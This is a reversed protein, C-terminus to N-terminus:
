EWQTGLIHGGASEIRRSLNLGGDGGWLLTV